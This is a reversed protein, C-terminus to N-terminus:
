VAAQRRWVRTLDCTWRWAASTKCFNEADSPIQRRNWATVAVLHLGTTASSVFTFCPWAAAAAQYKTECVSLESPIMRFLYDSRASRHWKSWRLTVYRVWEIISSSFLFTNLAVNRMSSIKVLYKAVAQQFFRCTYLGILSCCLDSIGVFTSLQLWQVTYYEM